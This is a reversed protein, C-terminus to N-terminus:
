LFWGSVHACYPCSRLVAYTRPLSCSAPLPHCSHGACVHPPRSGLWGDECGSEAAGLSGIQVDLTRFADGPVFRVLRHGWALGSSILAGSGKILITLDTGSGDEWQQLTFNQRSGLVPMRQPPPLPRPPPCCPACGQRQFNYLM